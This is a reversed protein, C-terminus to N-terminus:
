NRFMSPSEGFTDKFVQSFYVPSKFGVQYAIESISLDNSILLEKAKQLRIHRIYIATSMGTLAKIKRHVQSRSLFVQQALEQSSFNEDELNELLITEIKKIFIDEKTIIEEKPLQNVVLTSSYKQQLKKRIELLKNLRIMLEEKEFPKILYADAGHSLGELKDESTARATLLIIPIHSTREDEKLTACVEFGDMEPMMVDSIIIDPLIEIAKEVGLKGNRCTVIQYENELCTKLYFIVDANDEIILLIPLDIDVVTEKSEIKDFIIPEQTIQLHTTSSVLPATNQIPFNLIFTTGVEPKSEVKLQGNMIEVLEKVLALGIGSGQNEYAPNAQHFRDFIYPLQEPSIGIGSDKVQIELDTNKKKAIVLIKGYEPTFKIANSILNTLVKELKKADFDMKLEQEDSYFQLGVNKIKAFSEHAEVLYKVFLLVDDQELDLKGKGAKLKSIELMQNVLSLLRHSNKKILGLKEQPEKNPENELEDAMGQIVTLPTRFEHTINSYFRTKFTDLEKLRNAEKQESLLQEKLKQRRTQFQYIKFLIFSTFAIFVFYALLTQYWFPSITFIYKTVIEQCVGENNCAKIEFNYDGSKLNTLNIEKKTDLNIWEEQIKYQYTIKDPFHYGIASLNLNLHYTNNKFSFQRQEFNISEFTPEGNAKIKDIYAIPIENNKKQETPNHLLIGNQGSFIFSKEKYRIIPGRIEIEFDKVNIEVTEHSFTNTNLVGLKAGATWLLSDNYTYIGTFFGDLKHTIGNKFNRFNTYGLGERVGAMWIRDKSDEQFGFVGTYSKINQTPEFKFIKSQKLDILTSSGMGLWLKKKSDILLSSIAQIANKDKLFLENTFNKITNKKFNLKFLGANSTGIWYNNNEDKVVKNIGPNDVNIQLPALTIQNTTTNFISIKEWSLILINGDEMETMDRLLYGANERWKFFPFKFVKYSFDKTNIKFLGLASSGIVYIFDDKVIIKRILMNQQLASKEELKVYIDQSQLPDFKFLGKRHHEYWIIGKSDVFSIGKLIGKPINHLSTKIIKKLVLDYQVLGSSTSIWLNQNNEKYFQFVSSHSKLSAQSLPRRFKKSSKEFITLYDNLPAIFVEDKTIFIRVIDNRALKPDNDYTYTQYENTSINFKILGNRSGIWLISQQYPDKILYNLFDLSTIEGQYSVEFSFKEVRKEDIYIKQLGLPTANWMINEKEFFLARSDESSIYEYPQDKDFRKFNITDISTFFIGNESSLWLKQSFSDLTISNVLGIKLQVSDLYFEFNKFTSGDFRSVGGDTALWLFGYKDEVIKNISNNILGDEITYHTASNFNSISIQAFSSNCFFFIIIILHPNKL